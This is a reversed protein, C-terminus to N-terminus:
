THATAFLATISEHIGDPQRISRLHAYADKTIRARTEPPQLRFWISPVLTMAWTWYADEDPYVAEFVEPQVTVDDFGARTLVDHLKGPTALQQAHHRQTIWQHASMVPAIAPTIPITAFTSVGLSGGTVLVRRFGALALDLRPFFMVGFGCLVADFAGTDFELQEADMLQMSANTINRRALDESTERVMAETLDIGNVFGSTTVATAAPFLIAGRGAAVDLVRDGPKIGSHEVMRSGFYAFLGAGYQDYNAATEGVVSFTRAKAAEVPNEDM